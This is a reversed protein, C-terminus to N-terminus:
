LREIIEKLERDIAGYKGYEVVRGVEKENQMVIFTPVNTVGYKEAIDTTSKKSRDVAIMRINKADYGSMDALKYFLPLLNHTDECWTGGFVLMKFKDKNKAFVDIADQAPNVYKYTENFWRCSSDTELIQRSIEGKLFTENNEMIVEYNEKSVKKQTSCSVMALLLMATIWKM